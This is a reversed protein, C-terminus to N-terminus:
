FQYNQGVIEGLFHNTEVLRYLRIIDTANAQETMKHTNKNPWLINHPWELKKVSNYHQKIIFTVVRTKIKDLNFQVDDNLYLHLAEHNEPAKYEGEIGTFKEDGTLLSSAGIAVNEPLKFSDSDYNQNNSNQIEIPNWINDNFIFFCNESQVFVIMGNKPMVQELAKGKEKSYLIPNKKDESTLIVKEGPHLEQPINDTFCKISSNLLNDIKIFNENVLTDKNALNSRILDLQYNQTKM